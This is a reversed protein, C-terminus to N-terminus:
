RSQRDPHLNERCGPPLAIAADKQVALEIAFLTGVLPLAKDVVDMGLRAIDSPRDTLVCDVGTKRITDLLQQKSFHTPLGVVPVGLSMAALDAVVSSIGNEALIAVVRPSVVTLRAAVHEVTTLLQRYTLTSTEDEIARHQAIYIAHDHLAAIIKNM